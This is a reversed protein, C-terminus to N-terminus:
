FYKGIKAGNSISTVITRTDETINEATVLDDLLSELSRLEETKLEMMKAGFTLPFNYVRGKKNNSGIESWKWQFM